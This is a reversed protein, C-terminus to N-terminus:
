KVKKPTRAIIAINNLNTSILYCIFAMGFLLPQIPMAVATPQYHSLYFICASIIVLNRIIDLHSVFEETHGFCNCRIRREQIVSVSLVVTFVSFLLLAGQTAYYSVHNKMLMAVALVAELFVIFIAAPSSWAAPVWFSETLNQKFTRLSRSKGITASALICFIFLRSIEALFLYVDM